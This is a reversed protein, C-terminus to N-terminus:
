VDGGVSVTVPPAVPPQNLANPPARRRQQGGNAQAVSQLVLARVRGQANQFINYCM